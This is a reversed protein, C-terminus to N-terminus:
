DSHAVARPAYVAADQRGDDHETVVQFVPRGDADLQVHEGGVYDEREHRIHRAKAGAPVMPVQLGGLAPCSHMRTHVRAERTVDQAPCSPCEWRTEPPELHPVNM